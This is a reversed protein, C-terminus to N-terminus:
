PWGSGKVERIWNEIVSVPLGPGIRKQNGILVSKDHKVKGCRGTMTDLKALPKFFDFASLILYGSFNLGLQNEVSLQNVPPFQNNIRFDYGNHWIKRVIFQVNFPPYNSRFGKRVKKAFKFWQRFLVFTRKISGNLADRSNFGLDFLFLTRFFVDRPYM